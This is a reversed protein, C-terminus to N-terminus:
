HVRRDSGYLLRLHQGLVEPTIDEVTIARPPDTEAQPAAVHCRSCWLLLVASGDDAIRSVVVLRTGCPVHLPLPPAM